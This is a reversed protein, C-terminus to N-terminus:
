PGAASARQRRRVCAVIAAALALAGGGSAPAGVTCSWARPGNFNTGAGVGGEPMTCTAGNCTAGSACDSDSSCIANCGSGQANCAFPACSLAATQCGGLGNCAGGTVTVGSCVPAGCMGQPDPHGATVPRCVGDTFGTLASLCSQCSSTCPTNCCMGSVCNMSGCDTSVQCAAGLARSGQARAAPAAFALAVLACAGTLGFRLARSGRGANMFYINAGGRREDIPPKRRLSVRKTPRM